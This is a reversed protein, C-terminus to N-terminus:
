KNDSGGRTHGSVSCWHHLCLIQRRVQSHKAAGEPLVCEAHQPAFVERQASAESTSCSEAEADGGPAAAGGGADAAAGGDGGAQLPFM